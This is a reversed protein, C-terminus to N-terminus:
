AACQALMNRNTALLIALVQKGLSTFSLRDHNLKAEVLRLRILSEAVSCIPFTKAARLEILKIAEQDTLNVALTEAIRHMTEYFKRKQVPYVIRPCIM